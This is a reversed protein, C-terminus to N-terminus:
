PSSIDDEKSFQILGGTEIQLGGGGGEGPHQISSKRYGSTINKSMTVPM